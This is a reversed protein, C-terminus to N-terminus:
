RTAKTTVTGKSTKVGWYWIKGGQGYVAEVGLIEANEYGKIQRVHRIAEEPTIVDIPFDAAVGVYTVESSSIVKYDSVEVVYGKEKKNKSVFILKWVDSRGTSGVSGGSSIFALKADPQWEQAKLLAVDYASRATPRNDEVQPEGNNLIKKQKSFKLTGTAILVAAIVLVVIFFSLIITLKKRDM